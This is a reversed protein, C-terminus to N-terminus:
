KIRLYPARSRKEKLGEVKKRLDEPISDRSIRKPAYEMIIDTVIKHLMQTDVLESFPLGKILKKARLPVLQELVGRTEYDEVTSQVKVLYEEIIDKYTRSESDNPEPNNHNLRFLLTRNIAKLREDNMKKTEERDIKERVLAETSVDQPDTPDYHPNLYTQYAKCNGVMFCLNCDGPSHPIKNLDQDNSYQELLRRVGRFRSILYNEHRELDAKTVRFRFVENARVYDICVEMKDPDFGKAKWLMYAYSMVQRRDTDPYTLFSTKYDVVMSWGDDMTVVRDPIGVLRGLGAIDVELAEEKVAPLEYYDRETLIEEFQKIDKKTKEHEYALDQKMREKDFEHEAFGHFKKGVNVIKETRDTETRPFIVKSFLYGARCNEFSRISSPSLNLHKLLRDVREQLEDM